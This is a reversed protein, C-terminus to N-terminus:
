KTPGPDYKRQTKKPRWERRREGWTCSRCTRPGLDSCGWTTLYKSRLPLHLTLVNPWVTSFVSSSWSRDFITFTIVLLDSPFPVWTPIDRYNTFCTVTFLFRGRGKTQPPSRLRLLSFSFHVGSWTWVNVFQKYRENTINETGLNQEM